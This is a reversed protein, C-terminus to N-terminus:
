LRILPDSVGSCSQGAFTTLQQADVIDAKAPGTPMVKAPLSCAIKACASRDSTSVIAAMTCSVSGRLRMAWCSPSSPRSVLVDQAPM